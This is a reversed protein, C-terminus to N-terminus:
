RNYLKKELDDWKEIMLWVTNEFAKGIVYLTGFLVVNPLVYYVFIEM